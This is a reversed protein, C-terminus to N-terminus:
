RGPEAKVLHNHTATGALVGAATFNMVTFAQYETRSGRHRLVLKQALCVLSTLSVKIVAGRVGFRGSNGALITNAEAKGWSSQLDAVNAGVLAVVSAAWVLRYDSSRKAAVRRQASSPGPSDSMRWGFAPTAIAGAPQAPMLGTGPIAKAQGDLVTQGLMVTHAVAWIM